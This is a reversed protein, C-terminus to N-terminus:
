PALTRTLWFMLETLSIIRAAIGSESTVTVVMPWIATILPVTAEGASLAWASCITREM